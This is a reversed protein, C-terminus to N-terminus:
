ITINKTKKKLDSIYRFRKITIKFLCKFFFNYIMSVINNIYIEVFRDEEM